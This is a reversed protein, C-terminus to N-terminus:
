LKASIGLKPIKLTEHVQQCFVAFNSIKGPFFLYLYENILSSIYHKKNNQTTLQTNKDTQERTIPKLIRSIPEPLLIASRNTDFTGFIGELNNFVAEAETFVM